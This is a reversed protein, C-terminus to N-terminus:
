RHVSFHLASCFGLTCLACLHIVAMGPKLTLAEYSKVTDCRQKWWDCQVHHSHRVTLGLLSGYPATRSSVAKRSLGCCPPGRSPMQRGGRPPLHRTQWETTNIAFVTRVPRSSFKWQHPYLCLAYARILIMSLVTNLVRLFCRM